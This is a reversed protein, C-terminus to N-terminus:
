FIKHAKVVVFAGEGRNERLPEIESMGELSQFLTQGWAQRRFGADVLLEEVDEPSYFTADRYFVNEARISQYHKGLPSNRDIFGVVVCAGPKLIRYAESFLIKSDDVFCITTVILASDFLSDKFPLAEAVGQVCLMGRKQAYRLMPESPDLGVGVGLPAGFRGTGAGIEICLGCYPLFARAALLESYYDMQHRDFWADYRGHDKSFVSRKSNTVAVGKM